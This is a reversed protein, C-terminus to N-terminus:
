SRGLMKKLSSLKSTERPSALQEFNQGKMKKMILRMQDFQKVLKNVDSVDVGSGKAIRKRRSGNLIDVQAREQPTMSQIIAIQRKIVKDDINADAMKQKINKVGPLLNMLGSLGGMKLMQQMQQQMDNMDFIGKQMRKVSTEAEVSNQLEAAKEVLAVIDGRDLIRDAMRRADFLELDAIREGTGLFKIPCGTITKMSLAAGGRGDGDIRTLVLGSLSVAAAFASAVTVAVQGTVADAVLLIESPNIRKELVKLEEIMVEDAHGRGATDYIVVDAAIEKAHHMARAVIELPKQGEIIPLTALGDNRGVIELQLQAAPRYIDLSVLLVKKNTHKRIFSGIKCSSTTKGSGQLGVIMINAPPKVALKLIESATPAPAEGGLLDVLHDFVIKIIMKGPTISKIVDQGLAKEKISAICSKVVSLAVDAELLAIRIERLTENIDAESLGGKGRIKDFVATIKQSFNEFM